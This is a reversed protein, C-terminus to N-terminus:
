PKHTDTLHQDAEIAARIGGDYSLYTDMLNQATREAARGVIVSVTFVHTVLGARMAGHYTISELTPWAIGGVSPNVQDPQQAYARLNAITALRTQLGTKLETVTATM